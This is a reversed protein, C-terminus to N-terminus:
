AGDFGAPDGTAGFPGSMVWDGVPDEVFEGAEGGIGGARGLSDPALDFGNDAALDLTQDLVHVDGGALLDLDQAVHHDAARSSFSCSSGPQLVELGLEGGVAAADLGCRRVEVPFGAQAAACPAQQPCTRMVRM